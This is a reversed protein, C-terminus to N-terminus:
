MSETKLFQRNEFNIIIKYAFSVFSNVYQEDDNREPRLRHASLYHM